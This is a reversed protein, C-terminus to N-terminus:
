QKEVLRYFAAGQSEVVPAACEFLGGSYINTSAPAWDELNSSAALYYSKGPQGQASFHFSPSRGVTNALIVPPVYYHLLLHIEGGGWYNHGDVAIQYAAGSKVDFNLTVNYYDVGNRMSNDGSAVVTLDGLSAGNFVTILSDFDCGFTSLTIRGDAPATWTWWITKGATNPVGIDPEGSERTAGYNYAVINTYAADIRARKAFSDNAPPEAPLLQLHIAGSDDYVSDVAIQYRTRAKAQFSVESTLVGNTANDNVAILQLNALNDGTYVALRTDFSSGETTITVNGTLPSQWQWWVSRTGLGDTHAQNEDPERTADVNSAHLDVPFNTISIRNAFDDNAPSSLTLSLNIGGEAGGAGDVAIWYKAGASVVLSIQSTQTGDFANDNSALRELSALQVGTFVALVTDFGSGTTTLYLRGSSPATWSWWVTKGGAGAGCSPEGSEFTAGM